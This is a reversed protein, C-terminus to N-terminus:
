TERKNFAASDEAIWEEETSETDEATLGEARWERLL